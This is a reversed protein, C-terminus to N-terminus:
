KLRTSLATTNRATPRAAGYYQSRLETSTQTFAEGMKDPLNVPIVWGGTQEALSIM